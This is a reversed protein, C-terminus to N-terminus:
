FWPRWPHGHSDGRGVEFGIHSCIKEYDILCFFM